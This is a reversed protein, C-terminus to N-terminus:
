ALHQPGVAMTIMPLPKTLDHIMKTGNWKCHGKNLILPLKPTHRLYEKSDEQITVALPADKPPQQQVYMKKEQDYTMHGLTPMNNKKTNRKDGNKASMRGLRLNNAAVGPQSLCQQEFHNTKGCKNCTVGYAKCKEKRTELNARKGHGLRGCHRCKEKSEDKPIRAPTNEGGSKYQTGLKHLHSSALGADTLVGASRKATEKTEIFAITSMLDLEPTKALVEERTEGEYLGKVMTNLIETESFSVGETCRTSTGCSCTTKGTCRVTLKCVAALGRLRAVYTRIREGHEQKASRLAVINVLNSHHPVALGRMEEILEDETKEQLSAGHTYHLDRYLDTECCNVLQDRIDQIETLRNVRKYNRWREKWFNFEDSGVGAKLRPTEIKNVKSSPRNQAGVTHTRMHANFLSVALSTDEDTTVHGCETFPCTMNVMGM